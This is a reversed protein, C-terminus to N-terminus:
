LQGRILAFDAAQSSCSRLRMRLDGCVCYRASFLLRGSGAGEPNLLTGHVYVLCGPEYLQLTDRNRYCSAFSLVAVGRHSCSALLQGHDILNNRELDAQTFNIHFTHETCSFSM